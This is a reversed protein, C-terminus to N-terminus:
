ETLSLDRVRFLSRAEESLSKITRCVAAHTTENTFYWIGDYRKTLDEMIARSRQASKVTLEVEVAIITVDGDEDMRHIEGDVIHLHGAQRGEAQKLLTRECIWSDDPYHQEVWLRVQNTWYHHNVMAANPVYERFPLNFEHLCKVTPFVWPPQRAIVYKSKVYGAKMWRLLVRQATAMSVRGAEQTTRQPDRGLLCAIQDLRAGYQEGTWPLISADRPTITVRGKDRRPNRGTQPINM